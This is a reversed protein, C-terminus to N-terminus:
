KRLISDIYGAQLDEPDPNTGEEDSRAEGWVCMGCWSVEYKIKM